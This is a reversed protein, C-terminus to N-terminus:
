AAGDQREGILVCQEVPGRLNITIGLAAFDIM